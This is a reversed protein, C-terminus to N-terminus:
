VSEYIALTKEAATLYKFQKSRSLGREGLSQLLVPDQLARAMADRISTVSLPNVLLAADGAVEELSSGQSTITPTGCAMSEVVLGFGEFISPYVFLKAANFLYPLDEKPVYGLFTM